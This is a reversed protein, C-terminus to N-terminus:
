NWEIKYPNNATGSGGTVEFGTKVTIIPRIGYKKRNSTQFFRYDDIYRLEYKANNNNGSQTYDGIWYNYDLYLLDNLAYNNAVVNNLNVYENYDMCEVKTVREDLTM